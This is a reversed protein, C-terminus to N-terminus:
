WLIIRVIIIYLITHITLGFLSPGKGNITPTSVAYQTIYSTIEYAPPSSILAFVFGLIVAAWWKQGSTPIYCTDIGDRTGNGSPSIRSDLLLSNTDIDM